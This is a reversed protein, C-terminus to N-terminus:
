KCIKKFKKLKMNAPVEFRKMKYVNQKRTAYGKGPKGFLFAMKIGGNKYARIMNDSCGGHPYALYEFGYLSRQQAADAMVSKYSETQYANQRHLNYTHSQFNIINPYIRQIEKIRSHKIYYSGNSEYSLKGIVFVTARLKYKRLVPIANEVSAGHGDDITILVSRKPLKLKGMRWLYLEDCTIARYRKKRLWKMQQNFEKVTIAYRDNVYTPTRKVNNALIRHYTLVPIKNANKIKKRKYKYLMARSVTANRVNITQARHNNIAAFVDSPAVAVSTFVLAFAFLLSVLRTGHKKLM